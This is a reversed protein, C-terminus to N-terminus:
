SPDPEGPIFDDPSFAPACTCLIVLDEDGTNVLQHFTDPRISIAHGPGVDCTEAGLTIRGQGRVVVYVEEGAQHHHPITSGGPPIVSEAVSHHLLGGLKPSALERVTEGRENVLPQADDRHIITM